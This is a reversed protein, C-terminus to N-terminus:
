NTHANQMDVFFKQEQRPYPDNEVAATLPNDYLTGDTAPKQAKVVMRVSVGVIDEIGNNSSDSTFQMTREHEVISTTTATIPFFQIGEVDAQVLNWQGYGNLSSQTPIIERRYLGEGPQVAWEVLKIPFIRAASSFGSLALGGSQNFISSSSQADVQLQDPSTSAGGLDTLATIQFVNSYM